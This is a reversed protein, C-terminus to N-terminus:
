VETISSHIDAFNPFLLLHSVLFQIPFYRNHHPLCAPNCMRRAMRHETASKFNSIELTASLSKMESVSDYSSNCERALYGLEPLRVALVIRPIM